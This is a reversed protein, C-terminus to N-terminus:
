KTKRRELGEKIFKEFDTKKVRYEKALFTAPLKRSKIWRRVTVINVKLLIALDKTTLYEEM